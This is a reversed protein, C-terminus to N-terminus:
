AEETVPPTPEVAAKKPIRRVRSQSAKVEALQQKLRTVEETLKKIKAQKGEFDKAVRLITPDTFEM